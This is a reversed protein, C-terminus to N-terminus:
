KNLMKSLWTEGPFIRLMFGIPWAFHIISFIKCLDTTRVVRGFSSLWASICVNSIFYVILLGYFVIRVAMFFPSLVASVILALLFVIPLIQRWSTFKRHTIFFAARAAGYILYQRVLAAPSEKAPYRVRLEADLYILGGAGRLRANLSSDESLFRGSVDYGGARRLDATRYAGLYVTDVYGSNRGIRFSANGVGFPHSTAVAVAQSFETTGFQDQVGGAGVVRDRSLNSLCRAIYGVPVISRADVRVFYETKTLELALGLSQYVTAGNSVVLEFLAPWQESYKEIILITNDSSGGDIILIRLQELPYGNNLIAEIALPLYREENLVPIVVTVLRSLILDAALLTGDKMKEGEAGM